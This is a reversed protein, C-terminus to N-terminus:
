DHDNGPPSPKIEAAARQARTPLRNLRPKLQEQFVREIPKTLEGRRRMLEERKKEDLGARLKALELDLREIEPKRRSFHARGLAQCQRLILIARQTQLDDLEYRVIFQRTYTEWESEIAQRITATVKGTPLDPGSERVERADEQAMTRLFTPGYQIEGAVLRRAFEEETVATTGDFTLVEISKDAKVKEVMMGAEVGIDRATFRKPHDPANFRASHVKVTEIPERGDEFGKSFFLTTEPFWVGDFRKLTCRGESVVEGDQELTVRVPSWDRQPDIWWTVEGYDTIATVVHLGNEQRERYRRASPQAVNDRWLTDHLDARSNMYSVGLTRLRPNHESLRCEEELRATAGDSEYIWTEGGRHLTCRPLGQRPDVKGGRRRFVGDADGRLMLIEDQNASRGTYFMPWDFFRHKQASFEVTATRLRARQRELEELARPRSQGCAVACLGLQTALCALALRFSTPM